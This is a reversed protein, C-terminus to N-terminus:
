FSLLIYIYMSTFLSPLCAYIRTSFDKKGKQRALQVFIPRQLKVDRTSENSGRLSENSSTFSENSRTFSENSRTFSENSSTFLCMRVEYLSM